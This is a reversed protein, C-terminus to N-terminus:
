FCKTQTQIRALLRASEAIRAGKGANKERAACARTNHDNYTEPLEIRFKFVGKSYMGPSFGGRNADGTSLRGAGNKPSAFVYTPVCVCRPERDHSLSDELLFLSRAEDGVRSLFVGARRRTARFDRRVM